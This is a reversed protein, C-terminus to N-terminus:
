PSGQATLWVEALSAGFRPEGLATRNLNNPETANGIIRIPGSFPIGSGELKLTVSGATDGEPASIVPEAKVGEPLGVATITVPGVGMRRTVSVPLEATEGAPILVQDVKLSLEFDPQDLRATLLYFGTEAAAGYRDEVEILYEGDESIAHVLVADRTGASDDVEAIKIGTSNLLRLVPDVSLGLTTSEVSVVLNDGKKLELRFRDIQARRRLHGTVSQPIQLFYDGQEVSDQEYRSAAFPVLRVRASGAFEESHVFGIESDAPIRLSGPKLKEWTTARQTSVVTSVDSDFLSPLNYGVVEVQKVNAEDVQPEHTTDLAGPKEVSAAMPIALPIAATIYPGTTMTLRYICEKCGQLAINQNPESSFGFVRVIYDGTSKATLHTRPDLGLSDHNDALVVGNPQLIQIVSDIPAGLRAHADISAVLTQGAEVYVRYCDADAGKLDGNIVIPLQEVVQAQRPSDNPEVELAETQNSILFPVAQSAGESNYLRVWIRDQPLDKPITIQFKGTEELALVDCGSAHVSSPWDFKGHCSVAVTTGRQGGPPFLHTLSPAEAQLSTVCHSALWLCLVISRLSTKRLIDGM